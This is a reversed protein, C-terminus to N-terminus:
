HAISGTGDFSSSLSRSHSSWFAEGFLAKRRPELCAGPVVGGFLQAVFRARGGVHNATVGSRELARTFRPDLFPNVVEAGAAAALIELSECGLVVVRQAEYWRIRAVSNCPM